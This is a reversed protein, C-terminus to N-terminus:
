KGILAAYKDMVPLVVDRPAPPLMFVARQVGAKALEDIIAPQPNAWPGITAASTPAWVVAM